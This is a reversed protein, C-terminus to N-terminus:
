TGGNKDWPRFTPPTNQYVHQVIQPYEGNMGHFTSETFGSPSQGDMHLM